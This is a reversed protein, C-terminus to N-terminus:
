LSRCRPCINSIKKIPGDLHSRAEMSEVRSACVTPAILRTANVTIPARVVEGDTSHVMRAEDLTLGIGM